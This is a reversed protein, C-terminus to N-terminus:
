LKKKAKKLINHGSFSYNVCSGAIVVKMCVAGGLPRLHYCVDVM